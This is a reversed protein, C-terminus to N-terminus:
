KYGDHGVWGGSSVVGGVGGGGRGGSLFGGGGVGGPKVAEVATRPRKSSPESETFYAPKCSKVLALGAEVPVIALSSKGYVLGTDVHQVVYYVGGPAVTLDAAAEGASVSTIRVKGPEREWCLYGGRGTNGILVGNDSIRTSAMKSGSDPRILYIRAKSSDAVKLGQNPAKVYQWTSSCGSLLFANASFLGLLIFRM